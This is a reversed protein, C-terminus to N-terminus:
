NNPVSSLREYSTVHWNGDGFQLYVQYIESQERNSVTAEVRGPGNNGVWWEILDNGLGTAAMVENKIATRDASGDNYNIAHNPDHPVEENVTVSEGPQIEEINEEPEESEDQNDEEEQADQSDETNEEDETDTDESEEAINESDNTQENNSAESDESQDNQVIAPEESNDAELDVNDGSRSFIFVVLLILILFLFGIIYYYIRSIGNKTGTRSENGTQRERKKREKRSENKSM